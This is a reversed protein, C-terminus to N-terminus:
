VFIPCSISKKRFLLLASTFSHSRSGSSGANVKSVQGRKKAAMRSLLPPIRRKEGRGGEGRREREKM